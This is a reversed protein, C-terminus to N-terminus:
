YELRDPNRYYGPVPLTNMGGLNARNYFAEVHSEPDVNAIMPITASTDVPAIPVSGELTYEGCGIAELAATAEQVLNWGYAHLNRNEEPSAVALILRGSALNTNIRKLLLRAPRKLANPDSASVNFPTEMLHGLKSDIEDAADDVVKQPDIYSPLPIKGLLLDDVTSYAM